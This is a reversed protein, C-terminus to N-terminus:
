KLYKNKELIIKMTGFENHGPYVDHIRNKGVYNKFKKISIGMEKPNSYELDTRGVEDVFIHDGTLIRNEFTICMSCQSHGPTQLFKILGNEIVEEDEVYMFNNNKFDKDNIFIRNSTNEVIEKGLTSVIIKVNDFNYLLKKTDGVHDYHLHTLIIGKLILKESEIFSILKDTNWSPDVIFCFFKNILIYSNNGMVSNQIYYFNNSIKIM